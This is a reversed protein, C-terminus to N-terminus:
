FWITSDTVTMKWFLFPTVSHLQRRWVRVARLVICNVYARTSCETYIIIIEYHISNYTKFHFRAFLMIGRSKLFGSPLLKKDWVSHFLLYKGFLTKTMVELWSWTMRSLIIFSLLQVLVSQFFEVYLWNCHLTTKWSWWNWSSFDDGSQKCKWTTCSYLCGNM